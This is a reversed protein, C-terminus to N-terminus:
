KFTDDIDGPTVNSLMMEADFFTFAPLASMPNNAEMKMIMDEIIGEVLLHEFRSL